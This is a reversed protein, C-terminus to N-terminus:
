EQRSHVVLLPFLAMRAQHYVLYVQIMSRVLGLLIMAVLYMVAEILVVLDLAVKVAVAKVAAAKVAAVPLQV